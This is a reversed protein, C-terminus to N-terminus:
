ALTFSWEIAEGVSGDSNLHIVSVKKMRNHTPNLSQRFQPSSFLRVLRQQNTSRSMITHDVDPYLTIALVSAKPAHIEPELGPVGVM